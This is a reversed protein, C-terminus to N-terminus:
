SNLLREVTKTFTCASYDRDAQTLLPTHMDVARAGTSSVSPTDNAASLECTSAIPSSAIPLHSRSDHKHHHHPHQHLLRTDFVYSTDCHLLEPAMGNADLRAHKAITDVARITTQLLEERYVIARTSRLRLGVIDGIRLNQVKHLSQLVWDSEAPYVCCNALWAEVTYLLACDQKAGDAETHTLSTNDALDAVRSCIAFKTLGYTPSGVTPAVQPLHSLLDVKPALPNMQYLCHLLTPARKALEYRCSGVEFMRVDDLCTVAELQMGQSQLFAGTHLTTQTNVPTLDDDSACAPVVRYPLLALVVDQAFNQEAFVGKAQVNAKPDCVLSKRICLRSLPNSHTIDANNAEKASMTARVVTRGACQLQSCARATAEWDSLSVIAMYKPRDTRGATDTSRVYAM